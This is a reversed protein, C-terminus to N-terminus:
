WPGFFGNANAAVSVIMFLSMGIIYSNPDAVVPEEAGGRAQMAVQGRLGGSTSTMPTSIGRPAVFATVLQLVACAAVAAIVLAPLVSHTRAMSPPSHTSLDPQ